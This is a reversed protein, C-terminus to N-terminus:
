KTPLWSAPLIYGLVWLVFTRIKNPIYTVAGYLPTVVEVGKQSFLWYTFYMFLLVLLIGYIGGMQTYFDGVSTEINSAAMSKAAQANESEVGLLNSKTVPEAPGENKKPIRKCRMYVKGDKKFNSDIKEGDNFFVERDGVPQLPRSGSTANNALKAYDSPDITVSNAFIVWTIDGMCPPSVWSGEYVYFGKAEPMIDQLMWDSGLTVQTPEDPVSPYPVFKNFFATSPTDGPATRVPISLALTYGKPNQMLVVFEAEARVNEITHQAPHFLYASEATYGEGNFKATPRVQGFNLKLGVESDIVVSAEPIAVRDIKLECLRDCPLAFSRSLNVPSQHPAGCPKYAESWTEASAFISM